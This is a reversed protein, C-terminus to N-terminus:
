KFLEVVFNNGFVKDIKVEYERREEESDLEQFPNFKVFESLATKPTHTKSALDLKIAQVSLVLDTNLIDKDKDSVIIISDSLDSKGYFNKGVIFYNM